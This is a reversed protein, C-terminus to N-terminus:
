QFDSIYIALFTSILSVPLAVLPVVLARINGLFLFIITVLILAILLTKYVKLRLSLITVRDFSLELTTNPPLLFLEKNEKIGDAILLIQM